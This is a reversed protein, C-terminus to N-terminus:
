SVVVTELLRLDSADVIEQIFTEGVICARLIQQLGGRDQIVVLEVMEISAVVRNLLLLILKVDFHLSAGDSLQLLLNHLILTNKHTKRLVM